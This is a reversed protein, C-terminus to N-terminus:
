NSVPMATTDTWWNETLMDGNLTIEVGFKSTTLSIAEISALKKLMRLIKMRDVMPGPMRRGLEGTDTRLTMIEEVPDLEASISLLMWLALYEPGLSWIDSNILISHFEAQKTQPTYLM